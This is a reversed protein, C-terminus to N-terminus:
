VLYGCFKNTIVSAFFSLIMMNPGQVISCLCALHREKWSHYFGTTFSHTNDFSSSFNHFPM